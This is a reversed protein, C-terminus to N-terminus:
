PNFRPGQLVQIKKGGERGWFYKQKTKLRRTIWPRRKRLIWMRGKGEGSGGPMGTELEAFPPLPLSLIQQPPTPSHLFQTVFCLNWKMKLSGWRAKNMFLAANEGVFMSPRKGRRSTSQEWGCLWKEPAASNGAWPSPAPPAKRSGNEMERTVAFSGSFERFRHSRASLPKIEKTHV